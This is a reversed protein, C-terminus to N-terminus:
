GYVKRLREKIFEKNQGTKVGSYIIRLNKIDNVKLLMFGIIPEIGTTTKLCIAAQKEVLEDAFKEMKWASEEYLEAAREGQMKDVKEILELVKKEGSLAAKKLDKLPIIGNDTLTIDLFEATKEAKAARLATKLSSYFVKTKIIDAIVSSKQKKVANLHASICAADLVGDTLQADKTTNLIEYAPKAANGIFEPLIDFRKEEVARVLTDTDVSAPTILLGKFDIGLATAKLVAKLNHFDNEYFFPAFTHTDPAIDTIYEWLNETETKLMLPIDLTNASKGIGKDSMQRALQETSESLIFSDFDKEKLLTNERARLSGIAFGYSKVSM